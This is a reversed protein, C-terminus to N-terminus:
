DRPDVDPQMADTLNQWTEECPVVGDNEILEIAIRKMIPPWSEGFRNFEQRGLRSGLYYKMDSRIWNEVDSDFEGAADVYVNRHMNFYQMQLLAWYAGAEPESLEGPNLCGKALVVSPNEGALTQWYTQIQSYAQTALDAEALTRSQRLEWVVVILGAVVAFATLYDIWNHQKM